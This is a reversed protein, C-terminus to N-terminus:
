LVLLVLLGFVPVCVCVCVCSYALVTLAHHAHVHLCHLWRLKCRQVTWQYLQTTIGDDALVSAVITNTGITINAGTSVAGVGSMLAAGNVYVTISAFSDAAVFSLSVTNGGAGGGTFVTTVVYNLSQNFSALITVPNSTAASLNANGTM